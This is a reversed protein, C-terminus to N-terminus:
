DIFGRRPIAGPQKPTDEISTTLGVIPVFVIATSTVNPNLM